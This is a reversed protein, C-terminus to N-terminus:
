GLLVVRRVWVGSPDAAVGSGPVQGFIKLFQPRFADAVWVLAREPSTDTIPQVSLLLWKPTRPKTKGGPSVRQLSEIKLPYAAQEGELVIISGLARLEEVSLNRAERAIDIESFAGELQGKMAAGHARYEVKRIKPNGQGGRSFDESRVRDWV